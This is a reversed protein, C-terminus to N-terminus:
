PALEWVYTPKDETYPYDPSTYSVGVRLSEPLFVFRLDRLEATDPIDFRLWGDVEEDPFLLPELTSYEPYGERHGYAPKLETAAYLVSYHDLLPVEVEIQGVNKLQLHVWLFKEGAPPTRTSGYETIYVRTVESQDMTVQLDRWLISDGVHAPTTQAAAETPTPGSPATITATRIAQGGSLCATSVFLGILIISSLAGPQKSMGFCVQSAAPGFTLMDGHGQGAERM